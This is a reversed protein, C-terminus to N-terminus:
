TNIEQTQWHTITLGPYGMSKFNSTAYAERCKIFPKNEIDGPKRKCLEIQIKNEWSPHKAEPLWQAYVQAESWTKNYTEIIILTMRVDNNVYGPKKHKYHSQYHINLISGFMNIDLKQSM